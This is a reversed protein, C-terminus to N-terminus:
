ITRDGQRFADGVSNRLHSLNATQDVFDVTKTCTKKRGWYPKLSIPGAMPYKFEKFRQVKVERIGRLHVMFNFGNKKIKLCNKM